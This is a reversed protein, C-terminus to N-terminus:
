SRVSQLHALVLQESIFIMKFYGKQGLSQLHLASPQVLMVWECRTKSQDHVSSLCSNVKAISFLAHQLLGMYFDYQPFCVGSLSSWLSSWLCTWQRIQLPPVEGLVLESGAHAFCERQKHINRTPAHRCPRTYPSCAWWQCHHRQKTRGGAYQHTVATCCTGNMSIVITCIGAKYWM